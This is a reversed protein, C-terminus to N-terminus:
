GLWVGVFGGPLAGGCGGGWMVRLCLLFGDAPGYPRGELGLGACCVNCDGGESWLFDLGVDVCVGCVWCEVGGVGLVEWGRDAEGFNFRVFGSGDVGCVPAFGQAGLWEGQLCVDVADSIGVVLGGGGWM